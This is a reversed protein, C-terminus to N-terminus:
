IYTVYVGRILYIFLKLKLIILYNITQSISILNSINNNYGKIHDVRGEGEDIRRKLIKKETKLELNRQNNKKM